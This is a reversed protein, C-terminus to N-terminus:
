VIIKIEVILYKKNIFSKIILFYYYLKYKQISFNIKVNIYHIRINLMFFLM